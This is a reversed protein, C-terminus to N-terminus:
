WFVGAAILFFLVIAASIADAVGMVAMARIMSGRHTRKADDQVDAYVIPSDTLTISAGDTSIFIHKGDTIDLKQTAPQMDSQSVSVDRMGCPIRATGSIGHYTRIVVSGDIKIVFPKHSFSIESCTILVSACERDDSRISIMKKFVVPLMHAVASVTFYVAVAVMILALFLYVLEIRNERSWVLAVFVVLMPLIVLIVRDGEGEIANELIGM